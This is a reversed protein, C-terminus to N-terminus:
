NVVLTGLLYSGSPQQGNQALEIKNGEITAECHLAYSGAQLAPLVTTVTRTGSVLTSLEAAITIEYTQTGILHLKTVVPLYSPAVGANEWVTTITDEAFNFSASKLWYRYGLKRLLAQWNAKAENSLAAYTGEINANGFGSIHFEEVQRLAAATDFVFGTARYPEVIVPAIMWRDRAAAWSAKQKIADFQTPHGWSDRRLGIPKTTPKAMAYGLGYDDDTMMVLQTSPFAAVHADIIDRKAQESAKYENPFGYMHWEGYSGYIRIEVYALRPDGDFEAGITNLLNRMKTKFTANEWAPIALGNYTITPVTTPVSSDGYPLFAQVSVAAKKGLADAAEIKTRLPNLHINGLNDELDKWVFRQYNTTEDIGDVYNQAGRWDEGGANPLVLLDGFGTTTFTQVDGGTPPPEEPEPEPFPEDESDIDVTTAFVYVGRAESRYTPLTASTTTGPAEIGLIAFGVRPPFTLFSFMKDSEFLRKIRPLMNEIAYYGRGEDIAYAIIRILNTGYGSATDGEAITSLLICPTPTEETYLGEQIICDAPSGGLMGVLLPDQALYDRVAPYLVALGYENPLPNYM